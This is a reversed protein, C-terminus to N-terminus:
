LNLGRAEKLVLDKLADFYWQPCKRWEYSHVTHKSVGMKDGLERKTLGLLERRQKAIGGMWGESSIRKCLPCYMGVYGAILTTKRCCILCETNPFKIGGAVLDENTCIHSSM